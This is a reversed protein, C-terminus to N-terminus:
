ETRSGDHLEMELGDEGAEFDGEMEFTFQHNEGEDVEFSTTAYSNGSEDEYIDMPAQIEEGNVTVNMMIRDVWTVGSAAYAVANSSIFVMVLIAMVCAVKLLPARRKTREMNMQKVKGTLQDPARLEDFASRFFAKNKLENNM